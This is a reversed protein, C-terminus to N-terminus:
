DRVCQDKEIERPFTNFFSHPGEHFSRSIKVLIRNQSTKDNKSIHFILKTHREIEEIQNLRKSSDKKAVVKLKM